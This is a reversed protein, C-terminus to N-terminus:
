VFLGIVIAYENRRMFVKGFRVMFAFFNMKLWMFFRYLGPAINKSVVKLLSINGHKSDFL